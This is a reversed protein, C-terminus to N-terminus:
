SEDLRETLDDDDPSFVYVFESLDDTYSVKQDLITEVYAELTEDTSAKLYISVVLKSMM